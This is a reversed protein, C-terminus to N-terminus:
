KSILDIYLQFEILLENITIREFVNPTIMKLILEKINEFHIWKYYEELYETRNCFDDFSRKQITISMYKETLFVLTLGLTYIDFTKLSANLFEEHTKSFMITIMENYKDKYTQFSYNKFFHYYDIKIEKFINEYNCENSINICNNFNNVNYYEIEFPFYYYLEEEDYACNIIYEPIYGVLGFDITKLILNNDILINNPKLDHHIYKNDLLLKIFNMLKLIEKCIHIYITDKYYKNKKDFLQLLSLGGFEYNIYYYNNYKLLNNFYLPLNNINLDTLETKNIIYFRHPKLIKLHYKYEPDLKNIIKHNNYETNANSKYNDNDDDTDNNNDDIDNVDCYDDIFIKSVSNLNYDSNTIYNNTISPSIVFGFGGRAIYRYNISM